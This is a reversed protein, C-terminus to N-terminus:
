SNGIRSSIKAIPLFNFLHCGPQRKVPFGIIKHFFAVWFCIDKLQYDMIMNKFLFNLRKLSISKFYLLSDPCQYREATMYGPSMTQKSWPLYPESSTLWVSCCSRTASLLDPLSLSYICIFTQFFKFTLVNWSCPPPSIKILTPKSM